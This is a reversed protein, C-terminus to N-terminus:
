LKQYNITTSATANRFYFPAGPEDGRFVINEKAFGVVVNAYGETVDAKGKTYAEYGGAGVIPDDFLSQMSMLGLSMREYGNVIKLQSEAMASPTKLAKLDNAFNKYDIAPLQLERLKASSSARLADTVIEQETPHVRKTYREIIVGFQNGYDHLAVPGNDSSINLDVMQNQPTVKKADFKKLLDAYTSQRIGDAQEALFKAFFEKKIGLIDTASTAFHPDQILALMDNPPDGPKATNPKTPDRGERVEEGDPTGDGDTDFKYPDSGYLHEEWDPLGDADSDRDTISTSTAIYSVDSPLTQPAIVQDPHAKSNTWLGIGLIALAVLASIFLNRHQVLNPM